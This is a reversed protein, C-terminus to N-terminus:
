CNCWCMTFACMFHTPISTKSTGLSSSGSMPSSAAMSIKGSCAATPGRAARGRWAALLSGRCCRKASAPLPTTRPASAGPPRLGHSRRPLPLPRTRVAATARRPGSSAAIWRRTADVARRALKIWEIRNIRGANPAGRIPLEPEIRIRLLTFFHAPDRPRSQDRIQFLGLGSKLFPSVVFLLWGLIIFPFIDLFSFMWAFVFPSDFRVLRNAILESLLLSVSNPASDPTPSPIQPDFPAFKSGVRRSTAHIKLRQIPNPRLIQPPPIAPSRILRAPRATYAPQPRPPPALKQRARQIPPHRRVRARSNAQQREREGRAYIM